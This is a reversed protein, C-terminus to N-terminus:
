LLKAAGPFASTNLPQKNGFRCKCATLDKKCKDMTWKTADSLPSTNSGAKSVWYFRVGNAALTYAYDNLAYTTAANYAGRDVLRGVIAFPVGSESATATKNMTVQTASQRSLITTASQINKGTITRGVDGAVFAAVASTLVASSLTTVGDPFQGGLLANAYDAVPPGAYACDPGRYVWRCANAIIQRRPIMLGEVDAATGLEFEVRVNTELRKREVVFIDPTMQQPQALDAEPQGDLFASYTRRRTVTCGVFDNYSRMLGTVLSDVNGVAVVPRPSVGKSSMEWGDGEIARPIYTKTKFVIENLGQSIGNHFYLVPGGWKGLDLEWLELLRGPELARSRTGITSV